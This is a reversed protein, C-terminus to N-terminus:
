VLLFLEESDVSDRSSPGPGCPSVKDSPVMLVNRMAGLRPLGSNNSHTQSHLPAHKSLVFSVSWRAYRAECGAQPRELRSKALDGVRNDSGMLM